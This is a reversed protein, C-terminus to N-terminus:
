LAPAETRKDEAQGPFSCILLGLVLAVLVNKYIM